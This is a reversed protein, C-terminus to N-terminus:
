LIHGYKKRFEYIAHDYKKRFESAADNLIVHERAYEGMKYTFDLPLDKLLKQMALGSKEVRITAERLQEAIDMISRWKTKIINEDFMEIRVEFSVVNPENGHYPKVYVTIYKPHVYTIGVVDGGLITISSLIDDDCIARYIQNTTDVAKWIREVLSKTVTTYSDLLTKLDKMTEGINFNNNGNSM